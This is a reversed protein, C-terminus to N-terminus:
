GYIQGTGDCMTCRTLVWDYQEDESLLDYEEISIENGDADCYWEGQGDCKPCDIPDPENWPARAWESDSMIPYYGGGAM